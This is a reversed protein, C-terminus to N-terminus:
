KAFYYNRLWYEFLPDQIHAKEEDDFTIVEKKVLAEKIRFVNASSNLNYREIIEASSFRSVGDVVARLLNIQNSTLDFMVRLFNASHVSLLQERAQRVVTRNIYGAPFAYCMACMQKVYWMNGGTITYIELAEESEIVRGTNLFTSSIYECVTRRDLPPLSINVTASHFFRREEFLYKMTNLSSGTLIYRVNRHKSWVKDITDVKLDKDDDFTAVNQFEKVYLVMTTGTEQALVEPLELVNRKSLSDFDIDFPLITKKVAGRYCERIIEKLLTVFETSTRTNFLDLECFLYSANRAKLGSLVERVFTEKGSRPTDYVSIGKKSDAITSIAKSIQEGRGIISRGSSIKEFAFPLDM